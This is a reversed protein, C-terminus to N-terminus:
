DAGDGEPYLVRELDDVIALLTIALGQETATQWHKDRLDETMKRVQGYTTDQGTFVDPVGVLVRSDLPRTPVTVERPRQGLWKERWSM